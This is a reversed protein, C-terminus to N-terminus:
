EHDNIFAVLAEIEAESLNLQPMQTQPKVSAPDHLWKYLYDPKASLKSLDPGVSFDGFARRAESVATHNHCVVCGKALFLAQGEAVDARSARSATATAPQGMMAFSLVGIMASAAMLAAAWARRTRLVAVLGVAAGAGGLALGLMPLLPLSPTTPIVAASSGTATLVNLAPMPQPFAGFADISWNWEGAEPFTLTVIYHGAEGQPQAFATLAQGTVRSATIVPTLGEMPRVGHQRVMFGLSLPKAAVIRTPLADLTVAAWGGALATPALAALALLCVWVILPRLIRLPKM